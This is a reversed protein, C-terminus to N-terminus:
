YRLLNLDFRATPILKQFDAYKHTMGFYVAAQVAIRKWPRIFRKKREFNGKGATVNSSIGTQRVYGCGDHTIRVELFLGGRGPNISFNDLMVDYNRLLDPVQHDPNM